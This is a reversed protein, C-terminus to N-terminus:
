IMTNISARFLHKFVDEFELEFSDLSSVSSSSSEIIKKSFNSEIYKMTKKRSEGEIKKLDQSLKDEKSSNSSIISLYDNKSV